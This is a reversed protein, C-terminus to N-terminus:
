AMSGVRGLPRASSVWGRPPRRTALTKLSPGGYMTGIKLDRAVIGLALPILNGIKRNTSILFLWYQAM